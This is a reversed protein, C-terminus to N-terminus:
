MRTLDQKSKEHASAWCGGLVNQLVTNSNEVHMAFVSPSPLCDAISRHGGQQMLAALRSFMTRKSVIKSRPVSRSGAVMKIYTRGKGEFTQNRLTRRFQKRGANSRRVRFSACDRQAARRLIRRAQSWISNHRACELVAVPTKAAEVM